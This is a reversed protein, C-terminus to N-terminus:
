SQHSKLIKIIDPYNKRKAIDIFDQTVIVHRQELLFILTDEYNLAIAYQVYTYDHFAPDFDNRKIVADFLEKDHSLAIRLLMSGKNYNIDIDSRSIWKKAMEYEKVNILWYLIFTPDLHRYIHFDKIFLKGISIKISDDKNWCANFGMKIYSPNLKDYMDLIKTVDDINDNICSKLLNFSLDNDYKQKNSSKVCTFFIFACVATIIAFTLM